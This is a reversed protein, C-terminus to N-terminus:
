DVISDIIEFNNFDDLISNNEIYTASKSYKRPMNKRDFLVKKRDKVPTKEGALLVKHSSIREKEDIDAFVLGNPVKFVDTCNLKEVIKRVIKATLTGGSYKNEMFKGNNGMWVVITHTPTYCVCYADTNGKPTGVTGTKAAVSLNSFGVQRATGNKACKELINTMLYATQESLIKRKDKKDLFVTNGNQDTIKKIFKCKNYTGYNAFVSYASCLEKLTVGKSFNGLAIPLSNDKKDLKIGFKRLFKISNEIGNQELIKIAPINLSHILSNEVDTWGYYKDNFNSPSWGDFNTKEDLIPTCSYVSNKEMAYAYLFPKITSAPSRRCESLDTSANSAAAVISCDSNKSIMISVFTDDVSNNEILEEIYNQLIFDQYTEVMLNDAFVEDSFGGLIEKLESKVSDCYFDSAHRDKKINIKENLSYSYQENTIMNQELMRKLVLNRRKIAKDYQRRPSYLSPNNIIGALLASESLTLSSATKDFFSRSANELGYIGDGFYLMNLYMSLIEEKSYARELERAIRIEQIKRSLTKENKLHTNKILQQSITSAGEKFGGSLINNKAASIMRIVDIGNHSYFRKDEIAVFSNLTYDSLNSIDTHLSRSLVRQGNILNGNNDLFETTQTLSLLRNKDLSIFGNIKVAPELLIFLSLIFSVFM